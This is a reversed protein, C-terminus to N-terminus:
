RRGLSRTRRPSWATFREWLGSREGLRGAADITIRRGGAARVFTEDGTLALWGIGRSAAVEAIVTGFEARDAEGPIDSTPHELVLMAPGLALARALHVRTREGPTLTSVPADLKSRAVRAADALREVAARTEDTMPDIALTLPLALNSATALKDILVARNTVLGFRDLSLLWETDTRIDRTDLGAIRVVGEDPVVAGTILHVFMEAANRSLGMLAVRDTAALDLSEIRLPESEGYGKAVGRLSLLPVNAGSM